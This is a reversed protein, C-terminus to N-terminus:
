KKESRNGPLRKKTGSMGGWHSGRLRLADNATHLDTFERNTDGLWSKREGASFVQQVADIQSTRLGHGFSLEDRVMMKGLESGYRLSGCWHKRPEKIWRKGLREHSILMNWLSHDTFIVRQHASPSWQQSAPRPCSYSWEKKGGWGGKWRGFVRSKGGTDLWQMGPIGVKIEAENYSRM